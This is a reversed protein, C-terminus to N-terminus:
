TPDREAHPFEGDLTVDVTVPGNEVAPDIRVVHGQIVGNRTDISASQGIQVDKAQTEAIRLETKLLSPDGVRALNTGATM